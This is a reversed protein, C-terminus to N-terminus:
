HIAGVPPQPEIGKQLLDERSSPVLPLPPNIVRGNALEFAPKGRREMRLSQAEATLPEATPLQFGAGVAFTEDVYSEWQALFEHGRLAALRRQEHMRRKLTETVPIAWKRAGAWRVLQDAIQVDDQRETEFAQKNQSFFTWEEPSKIKERIAKLFGEIDRRLMEKSGGQDQDLERRVMEILPYRAPSNLRGLQVLLDSLSRPASAGEKEYAELARDLDLLEASYNKQKRAELKQKEEELKALLAPQTKLGALFATIQNRYLAPEEAGYLQLVNKAFVAASMSGSLEGRALYGDFTKRLIKRDPFQRFLIADGKGSGGELLVDRVGYRRDLRRLIKEIKRQADPQAHADELILVTGRTGPHKERVHAWVPPLEFGALDLSIQAQRPSSDPDAYVPPPCHLGGALFSLLTATAIVKRALFKYM